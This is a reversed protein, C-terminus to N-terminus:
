IVEPIKTPVTSGARTNYSELKVDIGEVNVVDASKEKINVFPIDTPITAATIGVATATEFTSRSIKCDVEADDNDMTLRPTYVSAPHVAGAAM